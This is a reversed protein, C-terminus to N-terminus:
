PDDKKTQVRQLVLSRPCQSVHSVPRSNQIPTSPRLRIGFYRYPRAQNRPGPRRRRARPYRQRLAKFFVADNAAPIRLSQTWFLYAIRIDECAASDDDAPEVCEEFFEVLPHGEFRSAELTERCATADTFRGQIVLRQRGTLAWGLIGSLERTLKDVLGPDRREAPVVNSCPLLIMRRQIADSLDSFDPVANATFFLRATPRFTVAPLGKRDSTMLDGATYAKLLDEKLRDVAGIETVINALKGVTTLLQFREFLVDLSVHSCNAEGLVRTFIEAVVSKGTAAPGVIILFKQHSNDVFLCLGAFEQLVAIREQDGEFMEELFAVWTPCDALADYAYPLFVPSFWSASHPHLPLPRGARIAEDDLELIGNAVSVCRTSRVPEPRLWAPQEVSAAVTVVSKLAQLTNALVSLTVKRVFQADKAGEAEGSPRRLFVRDFERKIAGTLLSRVDSEDTRTYRTGDWIWFENRYFKISWPKKLAEERLFVATLRHPDDPAEV